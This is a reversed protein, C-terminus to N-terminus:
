QQGTFTKTSEMEPYSDRLCFGSGIDITECLTEWSIHFKAECLNCFILYQILLTRNKDIKPGIAAFQSSVSPSM